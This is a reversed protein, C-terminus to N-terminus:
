AAAKAAFEVRVTRYPFHLKGDADKDVLGCAVLAQADSHVGKVDRGVRRALERVGLAGAGTLAEILGWRTATLTRLLEEHTRFSYRATDAAVGRFAAKTRAKVEAPTAVGITLTNNDM